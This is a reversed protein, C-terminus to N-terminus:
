ILHVLPPKTTPDLKTLNFATNQNIKDFKIAEIITRVLKEINKLIKLAYHNKTYL